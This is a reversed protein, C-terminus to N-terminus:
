KRIVFSRSEVRSRSESRSESAGQVDAARSTPFIDSQKEPLGPRQTSGQEGGGRARGGLQAHKNSGGVLRYCSKLGAPSAYVSGERLLLSALPAAIVM